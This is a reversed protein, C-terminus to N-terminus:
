LKESAHAMLQASGEITNQTVRLNKIAVLRKAAEFEVIRDILLFPYRHPLFELIEQIDFKM